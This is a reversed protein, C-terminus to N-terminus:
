VPLIAGTHRRCLVQDNKSREAHGDTGDLHPQGRKRQDQRQRFCDSRLGPKQNVGATLEVCWHEVDADCHLVFLTTCYGSLAPGVKGALAHDGNRRRLAVDDLCREGTV